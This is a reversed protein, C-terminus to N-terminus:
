TRDAGAGRRPLPHRGDSRSRANSSNGSNPMSPASNATSGAL